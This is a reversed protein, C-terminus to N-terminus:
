SGMEEFPDPAHEKFLKKVLRMRTLLMRAEKEKAVLKKRADDGEEEEEEKKGGKREEQEDGGEQLLLKSSGGEALLQKRAKMRDKRAKEKMGQFFYVIQERLSELDLVTAVRKFVALATEESKETLKVLLLQFLLRFFVLANPKM